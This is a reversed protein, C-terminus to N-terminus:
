PTYGQRVFTITSTRGDRRGSMSMDLLVGNRDLSYTMKRSQSTDDVRQTKARWVGGTETTNVVFAAKRNGSVAEYECRGLTAICDHPVYRDSGTLLTSATGRFRNDTRIRMPLFVRNNRITPAETGFVKAIDKATEQLNGINDPLRLVMAGKYDYTTANIRRSKLTLAAPLPQGNRLVSFNYTVGSPPRLQDLNVESGIGPRIKTVAVPSACASLFIAASLALSLKAFSRLTIV